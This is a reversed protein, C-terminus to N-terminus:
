NATGILTFAAWDKPDPHIKMTELMAQRLAQAKDQNQQLQQYFTTMLEATPADPVSWLSVLVSPTGATILARSLGIVGDGTIDGLGTDCASLVVLEAQLDLTELIEASTLLGDEGPSPTLAIAGPVDSVGSDQPNGYELLGHTAFHVLRATGIRQKITQETAAAATLASTNFLNAIAIAEQSAGELPSLSRMQGSRADWVEPMLPNGVILLDAPTLPQDLNLRARQQQTLALVEISPATLLTHHQILYDGASDILAPFPVLFLDGQPIIIVQKEPDTPLLDQIPAILLQHLTKLNQNSDVPEADAFEFGRSRVGIATRSTKVLEELRHTQTNIPSRRFHVTGDPQVVWIYLEATTGQQKGQHVFEDEPVLSYEILTANQAKAINKIQTLSVNESTLQQREALLSTFARARSEESTVLAQETKGQAVLVQQMLNYSNAQTDFISIRDADQSLNDRLRDLIVLAAKLDNEASQLKTAASTESLTKSWELLTHARNNLTTAASEDSENKQFIDLGAQYNDMAAEFNQRAAQLFGLSAFAEAEIWRDSSAQAASLSEQYLAIAKDYDNQSAHYASALNALAYAEARRDAVERAIELAQEYYAIATNYEGQEAYTAGLNGLSIGERQRDALDRAIELGSLQSKTAQEYQGIIRFVNGLNSLIQSEGRRDELERKIMLSQEHHAIAEIYNGLASYAIGLNALANAAIARNEVAKAAALSRQSFEVSQRYSGLSYYSFGINGLIAAEAALDRRAVLSLYQQQYDLAQTHEEILSYASSLRSLTTREGSSDGAERYLSLAQQWNQIAAEIQHNSFYSSAQQSLADAQQINDPTQALFHTQGLAKNNASTLCSLTIVLAMMMSYNLRYSLQSIIKLNAV